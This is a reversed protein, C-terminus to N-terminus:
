SKAPFLSASVGSKRVGAVARLLRNLSPPHTKTEAALDALTKPGDALLDAVRLKAVVSIAMAISKGLILRLLATDAPTQLSASDTSM